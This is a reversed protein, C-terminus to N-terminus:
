PSRVHGGTAAMPQLHGSITRIDTACPSSKNHGITYINSSISRNNKGMM